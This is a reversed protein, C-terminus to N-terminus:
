ITLHQKWWDIKKDTLAIVDDIGELVKAKQMANLVVKGSGATQTVLVLADIADRRKKQIAINVYM